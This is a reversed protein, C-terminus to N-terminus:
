DLIAMLKLLNDQSKSLIRNIRKLEKHNEVIRNQTYEISRFVETREDTGFLEHNAKILAQKKKLTIIENDYRQNAQKTNEIYNHINKKLTEEDYFAISGRWGNMTYIGHKLLLDDLLAREKKKLSISNDGKAVLDVKDRHLDLGLFPKKETGYWYYSQGYEVRIHFYAELIPVLREVLALGKDEENRTNQIEERIDKKM